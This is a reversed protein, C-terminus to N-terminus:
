LDTSSVMPINFYFESGEDGNSKLGVDGGHRKIIEASIYLGLGLGSFQHSSESVRFFREFIFQQIDIPIGIGFDRVSIQVTNDTLESSIIIQDADPSYKIANSLFNSIVQELRHRDGKIIASINNKIIIQHSQSTIQVQSVVENIIESIDFNDFNYIMKGSQIKTVDLLDDVLVTLKDVQKNAKTFLDGISHEEGKPFKRNLIQLYAKMSTIPTKLEHSAVNLFEDKKLMLEEIDKKDKEQKILAEKLHLRMADLTNALKEAKTASKDALSARIDANIHAQEQKFLAVLIPLIEALSQLEQASPTCGLLIAVSGEPGAIGVSPYSTNRDPFCLSGIHYGNNSCQYTFDSWQKGGPLTQPFGLAPLLIGIEPDTIFILLHSCNFYEALKVAANYRNNRDSLGAIYNLIM